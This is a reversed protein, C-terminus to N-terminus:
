ATLRVAAARQQSILQGLDYGVLEGAKVTWHGNVMVAEAQHAGCLVLAAIPDGSGAFQLEDLSFLALDAQYGPAIQGIDNRRFLSAGGTTALRLANEHGFSASGYQLRQLLFAQRVEQMMNSVDNSASGDVGLGVAVSATALENVRCSGSALMMNSSPCHCIAVGNQGLREIEADDFHIGHALWVDDALWGVDELYDLPRRGFTELCFANEDETEALHTHLMAGHKRALAASERMLEPTVSFPSCPALAIQVMAGASADHYQEILRESEILITEQDQVVSDPPLGGDKESLSMSGRTLVVRMGLETAVEVQRDVATQAAAPFVYHHDSATTCGSLMLEALATRTSIEVLEDDLNAWVPYLSQLWPFLEKNLAGPLARTLTQYFHHHCNILGPILVCNSADVIDDCDTAPDGHVLEIIKDDEVVVGDPASQSNGTWTAAPQKIWTKM